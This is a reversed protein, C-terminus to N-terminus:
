DFTFVVRPVTVEQMGNKRIVLSIVNEVHVPKSYSLVFSGGCSFVLMRCLAFLLACIMVACSILAKTKAVCITCNRQKRFGFNGAELWIRHRSHAAPNIDSRNFCLM